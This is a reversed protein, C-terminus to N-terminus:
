TLKKKTRRMLFLVIELPLYGIIASYAINWQLMEPTTFDFVYELLPIAGPAVYLLCVIAIASTAYKIWNKKHFIVASFHRGTERVKKEAMYLDLMGRLLFFLGSAFFDSLAIHGFVYQIQEM